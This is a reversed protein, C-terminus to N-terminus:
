HGSKETLLNATITLALFTLGVGLLGYIFGDQFRTRQFTLVEMYEINGVPIELMRDRGEVARRHKSLVNLKGNKWLVLKGTVNELHDLTKEKVKMRVEVPLVLGPREAPPPQFRVVRTSCASCFLLTGTLVLAVIRRYAYRVM